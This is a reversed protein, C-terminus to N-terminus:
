LYQIIGEKNRNYYELLIYQYFIVKNFNNFEKRENKRPYAYHYIQILDSDDDSLYTKLSEKFITEDIVEFSENYHIGLLKKNECTGIGSCNFLRFYYECCRGGESIKILKTNNDTIDFGSIVLLNNDNIVVKNENPDDVNEGLKELLFINENFTSIQNCFSVYIKLKSIDKEFKKIIEIFEMVNNFLNSLKKLYIEPLNPYYKKIYEEINKDDLKEIKCRQM